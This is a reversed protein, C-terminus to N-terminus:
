SFRGIVFNTITFAVLVIVLGVISYTLINKAKTVKGSDGSSITYTVGGWIIMVVALVGAIFYAMNLGNQLLQEGTLKPIGNTTSPGAGIIDFIFNTVAIVSLSLALGVVANTISKRGKEIQSPNGGGTIFLFGGYLIFFVAIYAIIVLVIQLVNLAIRWIFGSLDNSSAPGAISCDDGNTLGRYWPPIGLLSAECNNAASVNQPTAVAMVPAAAFFIFVAAFFISLPKKM